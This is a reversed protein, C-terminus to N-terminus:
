EISTSDRSGLTELYITAEEYSINEIDYLVYIAGHGLFQKGICLLEGGSYGNQRLRETFEESCHELMTSSIRVNNGEDSVMGDDNLKTVLYEIM